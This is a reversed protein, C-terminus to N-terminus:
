PLVINQGLFEDVPPADWPDCLYMALRYLTRCPALAPLPRIERYGQAFAAACDEDPLCMEVVALEWEPPGAVYADLDVVAAIGELGPAFLFQNASIDAMILAFGTPAPTRAAAELARAVSKDEARYEVRRREVAALLRRLFADPDGSHDYMTGFGELPLSHLGGLMRGLQGCAAPSAPFTDPEWPVGEMAPYIHLDGQAAAPRAVAVSGNGEVHKAIAAIHAIQGAMTLGFVDRMTRWFPSLSEERMNNEKLIYDAGGHSFRRVANSGRSILPFSERGRLAAELLTM